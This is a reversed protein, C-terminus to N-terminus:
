PSEKSTIEAIESDPFMLKIPLAMMQLTLLNLLLM